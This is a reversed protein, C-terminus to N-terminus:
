KSPEIEEIRGNNDALIIKNYLEKCFVGTEIVGPIRKVNKDFECLEETKVIVDLIINGNDSIIPGIKGSGERYKVEYGINELERMVYNVSVNVVEIPVELAKVNKKLKSEEGIFIKYKSFYTLLKERFLAGGGGKIMVGANTLVDFSDIYISPRLGSFLSVVKFGNKSLELESDISSALFISGRKINEEKSLVEILKRITRGTGLGIIDNEKLYQLVYNALIEKAEM